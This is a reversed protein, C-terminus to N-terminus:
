WSIGGQARLSWFYIPGADGISVEPRNVLYMYTSDMVFHQQQLCASTFQRGILLNYITTQTM